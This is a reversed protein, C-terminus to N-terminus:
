VLLCFYGWLEPSCTCYPQDLRFLERCHRQQTFFWSLPQLWEFCSFVWALRATPPFQSFDICSMISILYQARCIYAGFPELPPSTPAFNCTAYHADFAGLSFVRGDLRTSIFWEPSCKV